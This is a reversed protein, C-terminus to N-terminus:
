LLPSQISPSSPSSNESTSSSSDVLSEGRKIRELADQHEKARRMTDELKVVDLIERFHSYFDCVQIPARVYTIKGPDTRDQLELVECVYSGYDCRSVIYGQYSALQKLTVESGKLAEEILVRAKEKEKEDYGLCVAMGCILVMILVVGLLAILTM